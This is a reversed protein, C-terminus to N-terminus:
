PATCRVTLYVSSKSLPFCLPVSLPLCDAFDVSSSSRSEPSFCFVCFVRELCPCWCVHKGHRRWRKVPCPTSQKLSAQTTCPAKLSSRAPRPSLRPYLSLTLTVHMSPPESVTQHCLTSLFSQCGKKAVYQSNYVTLMSHLGSCIRRPCFKNSDVNFKLM